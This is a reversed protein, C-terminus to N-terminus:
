PSGLWPCSICRRHYQYDTLSIL